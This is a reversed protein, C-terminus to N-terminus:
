VTVETKQSPHQSLKKDLIKLINVFIAFSTWAITIALVFEFGLIYGFFVGIRKFGADFITHNKHKWIRLVVFIGVAILALTWHVYGALALTPYLLVEHIGDFVTEFIAGLKTKIDYIRAMTGDIADLLLAVLTILIGTLPMRFYFYGLGILCLVFALISVQNPTMHLTERFFKAPGRMIKTYTKQLSPAYEYM